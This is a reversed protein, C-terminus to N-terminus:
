NKLSFRTGSLQIYTGAHLCVSLCICLYVYIFIWESCLSIFVRSKTFKHSGTILLQCISIPLISLLDTNSVYM